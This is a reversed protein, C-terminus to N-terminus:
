PTNGLPTSGPPLRLEGAQPSVAELQRTLPAMVKAAHLLARVGEDETLGGGTGGLMKALKRWPSLPKPYSELDLGADPSLKLV